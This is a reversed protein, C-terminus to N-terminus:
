KYIIIVYKISIVGFKCTYYFCDTNSMKKTKQITNQQKTQKNPKNERREPNHAWYQKYRQVAFEQNDRRNERINIYCNNLIYCIKGDEEDEAFL